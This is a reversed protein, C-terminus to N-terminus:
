AGQVNFRIYLSTKTSKKSVGKITLYGNQQSTHIAQFLCYRMFQMVDTRFFFHGLGKLLPRYIVFAHLKPPLRRLNKELCMKLLLFSLLLRNHSRTEM